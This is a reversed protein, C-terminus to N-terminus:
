GMADQKWILQSILSPNNTAFVSMLWSHLFLTFIEFKFTDWYSPTIKYSNLVFTLVQRYMYNFVWGM